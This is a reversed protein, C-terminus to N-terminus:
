DALTGVRGAFLATSLDTPRSVVFETTSGSGRELLTATSPLMVPRRFSIEMRSGDAGIADVGMLAPARGTLWWGHAIARSFGLPKAAYKHLHILNYDGSLRAYSRGVGEEAVLEYERTWEGAVGPLTPAGSPTDGAQSRSRSLVIVQAWWHATGDSVTGYLDLELGGKVHRAEPDLWVAM